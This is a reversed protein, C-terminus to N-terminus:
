SNPTTMPQDNTHAVTASQPQNTTAPLILRHTSTIRKKHELGELAEEHTIREWKKVDPYYADMVLTEKTDDYKINRRFNIGIEGKLMFGYEDLSRKVGQLHPPVDIRVGMSPKGALNRAHSLVFDRTENETFVVAAEQKNRSNRTARFRRVCEIQERTVQGRPILLDVGLFTQLNAFMVDATEGAVPYLLLTRRSRQYKQYMDEARSLLMGRPRLGSSGPKSRGSNIDNIQEQLKNM